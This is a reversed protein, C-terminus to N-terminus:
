IGIKNYMNMMPLFVTVIIFVILFSIIIIMMPELTATLKKLSNSLEEGYFDSLLSLSEEITGTEEGVLFVAKMMKPFININKISNYIGMGSKIRHNLDKIGKKYSPNGICKETMEFSESIGVGSTILINVITCIKSINQYKIIKGIIPINLFFTNIKRKVKRNSYLKFTFLIFIITSFIIIIFHNNIQHVIEITIKSIKPIDAELEEFLELFNPIIYMITIIFVLTTVSLLIIPYAMAAFIEKQNKRKEDYYYSMELFVKSLNGSKEGIEIMELFFTPFVAAEKKWSKYLLDGRRISRKINKLSKKINENKIQESVLILCNDIKIGSNLLISMYKSLIFIDEYSAKKKM